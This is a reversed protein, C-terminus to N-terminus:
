DRLADLQDTVRENLEEYHKKLERGKLFRARKVFENIYAIPWHKVLPMYQKALKGLIGRVCEEDLSDILVVEDFRGPRLVAPHFGRLSNAIGIVVKMKRNLVELLDLLQNTEHMQDMDDIVVAEIDFLEIIYSLINLTNVKYSASFVLTKYNLDGLVTNVLTTKGSGPPGFFLISRGMGASIFKKIHGLFHRTKESTKINPEFTTLSYNTADEPKHYILFNSNLAKMKAEVLIKMLANIDSKDKDYYLYNENRSVAYLYVEGAPTTFAKVFSNDLFKIIHHPYNNLIDYFLFAVNVNKYYLEERGAKDLFSWATTFNSSKFADLIAIGGEIFILPDRANEPKRFRIVADIISKADGIFSPHRSIFDVFKDRIKQWGTKEKTEIGPGDKGLSPPSFDVVEMEDEDDYDFMSM